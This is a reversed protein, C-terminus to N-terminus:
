LIGEAIVKATERIFRTRKELNDTELGMVIWSTYLHASALVQLAVIDPSVNEKIRKKKQAELFFQTLRQKVLIPPPTEFSALSEDIHIGSSILIYIGPILKKFHEFLKSLLFEIDQVIDTQTKKKQLHEFIIEWNSHTQHTLAKIMLNKKTGFRKFLTGESVNAAAAFKASTAKTGFELLVNQVAELIQLDSIRKRPAM